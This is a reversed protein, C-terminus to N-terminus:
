RNIECPRRSLYPWRNIETAVQAHLRDINTELQQLRESPVSAAQLRDVNAPLQQIGEPSFPAAQLRDIKAQLQQFREPSISTAQLRDVNAQLQQIAESSISAAQFRNFDTQLQQFSEPSVSVAQLLDFNALLQQIGGPSVCAAQLRDFNAQLQQITEPAVFAVGPDVAFLRLEGRVFDAMAEHQEGSHRNLAEVLNDHYATTLFSGTLHADLLDPLLSTMRERLHEESAVQHSTEVSPNDANSAAQREM